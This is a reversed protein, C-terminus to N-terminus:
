RSMLAADVDFVGRNLTDRLAKLAAQKAAAISPAPGEIRRGHSELAYSSSTITISVCLLEAIILTASQGRETSRWQMFDVRPPLAVMPMAITEVKAPARRRSPEPLSPVTPLEVTPPCWPIAPWYGSRRDGNAM